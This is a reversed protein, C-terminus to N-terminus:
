ARVETGCAGCVHIQHEGRAECRHTVSWGDEWEYGCPPPTPTSM